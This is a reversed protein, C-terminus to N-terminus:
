SNSVGLSPYHEAKGDARDEPAYRFLLGEYNRLVVANESASVLYNPMLPISTYTLTISDYATVMVFSPQGDINGSAPTITVNYGIYSITGNVDKIVYTDGTSPSSPLTVTISSTLTGIGVIYDTTLVTYNATKLSSVPVNHVGNITNWALSSGSYQLVTNTGSPAPVSTGHIGVVTQSSSTGSLDGGATFSGGSVPLWQAQTSANHWTLVYGDQTSGLSTNIVPNGQIKIVTQSSSTGSLDGGATFSGSPVAHWSINGSNDVAVLGAGSGALAPFTTNSQSVEIGTNSGALLAVLGAVGGSGAAGSQLTLNGGNGGTAGQQASITMTAGSGSSAFSQSLGPTTSTSVWALNGATINVNSGVGSQPSISKVYQFATTGTLDGGASFPITWALTSGNYMLATTSGSPAPVSIGQIGTVTMVGVVNSVDGSLATWTPTPTGNNILVQNATGVALKSVAIAATASVDANVVTSSTFAGGSGSHVIGTGLGSDTIGSVTISPSGTLGGSTGTTNLALTNSFTPTGTFSYNGPLTSTWSATTSNTAVLINNASPTAPVSTGNVKAVTPNPYTGSLDGGATGGPAVGSITTNGAATILGKANVTFTGVQTASGFSGVNANVTVLTTATGATTGSGTIDGSLVLNQNAQNGIPLTGTIYGSGGALNLASWTAASAGSVILQNGATLSGGAPVSTGNIKAVTPNPYTGSLDGGATGSPPLSTPIAVSSASTILGKANVTIQSVHTSDGYTNASVGSTTLTPNPYTGTLDGGASGSPPLSSPLATPTWATGNYELVQNTTPATSSVSVGRIKVVSTSSNPGTVDGALTTSGSGTPLAQWQSSANHWTLAYGDQASGLVGSQVANTQIAAVTPNPYTGSLDGGASGSPPPLTTPTWSSGTYELVQGTTPATSSVNVGRIGKVTQSTSSGTLDGGALFSAGGISNLAPLWGFPGSELHEGLAYVENSAANLVHVKFTTTLTSDFIGSSNIGNNVVSRMLLATGTGTMNFSATYTSQNVFITPLTPNSNDVGIISVNWNSVGSGNVLSVSISQGSTAQYPPSSGNVLVSPNPQM